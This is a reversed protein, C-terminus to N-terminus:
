EHEQEKPPLPFNLRAFEGFLKLAAGDRAAAAAEETPFLGLHTGKRGIKIYAQWPNIKSQKFRSVGIYRSSVHQRKKKNYSNQRLLCIRLNAVRNDRTNGNIHDVQLGSERIVGMLDRHFMVTSPEGRERNGRRSLYIALKRNHCHWSYKAFLAIGQSCFIYEHGSIIKIMFHLYAESSCHYIFPKRTAIKVHMMRVPHLDVRMGAGFTGVHM